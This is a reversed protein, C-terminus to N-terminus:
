EVSQAYLIAQQTSADIEAGSSTLLKGGSTVANNSSVSSSSTTTVASINSSNKNAEPTISDINGDQNIITRYTYQNKDMTELTIIYLLRDTAQYMVKIIRSIRGIKAGFDKNIKERIMAINFDNDINERTLEMLGGLKPM